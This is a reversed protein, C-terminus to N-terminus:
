FECRQNNTAALNRQDHLVALDAADAAAAVLDAGVKKMKQVIVRQVHPLFERAWMVLENQDALDNVARLAFQDSVVTPALHANEKAAHHVIAMAVHLVNAVTATEIELVESVMENRVTEM